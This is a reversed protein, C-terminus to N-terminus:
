LNSRERNHHMTKRKDLYLKVSGCGRKRKWKDRQLLLDRGDMGIGDM